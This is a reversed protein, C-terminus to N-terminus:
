RASRRLATRSSTPKCRQIQASKVTHETGGVVNIGHVVGGVLDSRGKTIALAKALNLFSYYILLPPSEVLSANQAAKFFEQAQRM